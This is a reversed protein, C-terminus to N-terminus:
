QSFICAPLFLPAHARWRSGRREEGGREETAQWVHVHDGGRCVASCTLTLSTDSFAEYINVFFFFFPAVPLCPPCSHSHSKLTSSAASLSCLGLVSAAFHTPPTLMIPSCAFACTTVKPYPWHLPKPTAGFTENFYYICYPSSCSSESKLVVYLHKISYKWLSYLYWYRKKNHSNLNIQKWVKMSCVLWLVTWYWYQTELLLLVVDVVNSTLLM